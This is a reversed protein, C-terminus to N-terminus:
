YVRCSGFALQLPRAHGLTRITPPPFQSGDEPWAKRGDLRVEYEVSCGPELEDLQVLAYHHGEVCFTAAARGLVDVECPGDTEVWVTADTEGVHRLVPGLVLDPAPM